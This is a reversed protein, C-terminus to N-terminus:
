IDGCSKLQGVFLPEGDSPPLESEERKMKDVDFNVTQLINLLDNHESEEIGVNNLFYSRAKREM